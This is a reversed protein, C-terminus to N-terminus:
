AKPRSPPLDFARELASVGPSLAGYGTIRLALQTRCSPCAGAFEVPWAPAPSPVPWSGPLGCSPCHWRASNCCTCVATTISNMPPQSPTLELTPLAM